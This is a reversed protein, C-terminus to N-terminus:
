RAPTARILWMASGYVLGEPGMREAIRAQLALIAAERGAEDLEAIRRAMTGLVMREAWARDSGFFMPERLGRFEPEAFGAAELVPRVRDPDGFAFPGPGDPPPLTLVGGASAAAALDRFWEQEDMAQWVLLVLAGGPRLAKAFNAFAAVPDGFFMVGNRSVVRDYRATGLDAVQADAQRFEVNTLGERAARARAEDVLRSSLDIGTVLGDPALRAIERSTRGAGCGVDLVHSGPEIAAAELFAPLYGAVEADTGDANDAWFDGLPGDWGKAMEVNSPDVVSSV